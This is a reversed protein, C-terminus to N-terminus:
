QLAEEITELLRERDVPKLLYGQPQLVLAKTIQDRESAGTLFIVPIDATVPNERMLRLVEPGNMEPMMYDLLVLDTKKNKMYNLAIPGSVASAVKYDAEIMGKITKVMTVDDDVVLITANKKRPTSQAGTESMTEGASSTMEQMLFLDGDLSLDELLKSSLKEQWSTMFEMIAKELDMREIPHHLELGIYSDILKHLRLCDGERGFIILPIQDKCYNDMLEKLDTIVTADDYDVAFILADPAYSNLHNVMDSMHLSSTELDFRHEALTYFYKTAMDSRGLLLLKIKDDM